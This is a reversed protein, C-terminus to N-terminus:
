YVARLRVVSLIVGLASKNLKMKSGLKDTWTTPVELISFGAKKLSFLLNIDFAIDAIRLASHVKEVANRRMAKAGCQTDKIRRLGPFCVRVFAHFLRSFIRRKTSQSQ